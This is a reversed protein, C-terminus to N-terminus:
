QEGKSLLAADCNACRTKGGRNVVAAAMSHCEPCEKPPWIMGYVVAQGNEMIPESFIGQPSFIAM